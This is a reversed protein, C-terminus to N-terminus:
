VLLFIKKMCKRFNPYESEKMPEYRVIKKLVKVLLLLSGKKFSVCVEM